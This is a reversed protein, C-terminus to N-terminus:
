QNSEMNRKKVDVLDFKDLREPDSILIGYTHDILLFLCQKVFKIMFHQGEDEWEQDGKWTKLFRIKQRVFTLLDGIHKFTYFGCRLFSIIMKFGINIITQGGGDERNFFASNLNYQLFNIPFNIGLEDKVKKHLDLSRNMNRITRRELPTLKDLRDESLIYNWGMRYEIQCKIFMDLVQLGELTEVKMYRKIRKFNFYENFRDLNLMNMKHNKIAKEIMSFIKSNAEVKRSYRSKRKSTPAISENELTKNFKRVAKLQPTLKISDM